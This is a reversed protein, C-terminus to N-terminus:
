AAINLHERVEVVGPVRSAVEEAAAADELSPVSGRLYVIGNRVDVRIALDTTSSDESLERRVDDAIEEDGRRVGSVPLPGEALDDMATAAFGGVVEYGERTEPAPRLVLDTPPFYPEAEASSEMVDTTGAPDNFDYEIGGIAVDSGLEEWESPLEPHYVLHAGEPPVFVVKLENVVRTVGEVQGVSDEIERRQQESNVEGVLHVLGGKVEAFVETTDYTALVEYVQARIEADEM